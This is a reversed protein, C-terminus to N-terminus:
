IRRWIRIWRGRSQPRESCVDRGAFAIWGRRKALQIVGGVQNSESPEGIARRLADSTFTTGPSLKEIYGIAREHWQPLLADLILQESSVTM